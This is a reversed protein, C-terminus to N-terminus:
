TKRCGSGGWLDWKKCPELKCTRSAAPPELNEPFLWVIKPASHGTSYDNSNLPKGHFEDLLFDTFKRSIWIPISKLFFGRFLGQCKVGSSM